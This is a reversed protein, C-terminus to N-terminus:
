RPTGHEKMIKREKEMRKNRERLWKATAGPFDGSCVDLSVFPTSVTKTAVEGCQTCPAERVGSELWVETVHGNPCRVDEIKLM